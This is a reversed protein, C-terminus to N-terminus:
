KQLMRSIDISYSDNSNGVVEMSYQNSSSVVQGPLTQNHNVGEVATVEEVEDDDEEEAGDEEEDGDEDDEAELDVEAANDDDEEEEEDDDDDDEEMAELDVIEDEGSGGGEARRALLQQESETLSETVYIGDAASVTGPATVGFSGFSSTGMNGNNSAAQIQTGTWDIPFRTVRPENALMNRYLKQIEVPNPYNEPEFPEAYENNVFYGIQVFKQNLYSCSLLIVTVGILDENKILKPDPAPTQLIFRNVGIPIPGVMAEELVQDYQSDEASGVYVVKWELDIIKIRLISFIESKSPIVHFSVM